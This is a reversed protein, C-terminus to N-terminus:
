VDGDVSAVEVRILAFSARERPAIVIPTTTTPNAALGIRVETVGLVGTIAEAAAGLKGGYVNGGIRLANGKAVAAAAAQDNGDAPYAPADVTADAAAVKELDIEVYIPVDVPRSFQVEHETGESDEVTVTTNGYTGIGGCVSAFIVAGIADDDGGSVLCEVSRAPVGISTPASDPNFYVSVTAVGSVQRLEQRIADPSGSAARFVDADAEERFEQDTALNRGPDANVLHIVSSWGGLPTDILSIDPALAVIPGTEVSRAAVDVAGTGLGLRWWTVTNDTVTPPEDPNITTLAFGPGSGAGASTGATKVEFVQTGSHRRDGVVYVTSTAWAGVAAITADEDTQWRSGTSAAKAVNLAPVVTTPTGTLILTVKSPAPEDRLTGTLMCLAALAASSAQDRDASKYLVLLLLWALHLRDCFLGVVQGLPDSDSLDMSAGVKSRIDANLDARITNRSPVLMGTPVLGYGTLSM